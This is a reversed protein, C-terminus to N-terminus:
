VGFLTARTALDDIVGADCVMGGILVRDSEGLSRRLVNIGARHRGALPKKEELM